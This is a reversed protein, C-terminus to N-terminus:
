PMDRKGNLTQYADKPTIGERRHIRPIATGPQQILQSFVAQSIRIVSSSEDDNSEFLLVCEEEPNYAPVLRQITNQMSLDADGLADDWHLQLWVWSLYMLDITGDSLFLTMLGRGQKLYNRYCDAALFVWNQILFKEVIPRHCDPVYKLVDIEMEMASYAGSGNRDM